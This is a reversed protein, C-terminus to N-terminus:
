RLRDGSRLNRNEWGILKEANLGDVFEDVSMRRMSYMVVTGAVIGSITNTLIDNATDGLSHQMHTGLVQDFSFELMEWIGEMSLVFIAILFLFWVAPIDVSETQRDMIILQIAIFGGVMLGSVLHTVKDWVFTTNYWDTALGLCHLSLALGAVLVMPWPHTIWEKKELYAPTWMLLICAIDNGCGYWDGNSVSYALMSLIVFTFFSSIVLTARRM